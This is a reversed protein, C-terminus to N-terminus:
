ACNVDVHSNTYPTHTLFSNEEKLERLSSNEEEKLLSHFYGCCNILTRCHNTCFPSANNVAACEYM